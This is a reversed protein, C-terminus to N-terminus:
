VTVFETMMPIRTLRMLVMDSGDVYIGTGTEAEDPVTVM